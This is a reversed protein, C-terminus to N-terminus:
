FVYAYQILPESALGLIEEFLLVPFPYRTPQKPIIIFCVNSTLTQFEISLLLEHEAKVRKKSSKRSQEGRLILYDRKERRRERGKEEKCLRGMLKLGLAIHWGQDQDQTGSKCKQEGVM